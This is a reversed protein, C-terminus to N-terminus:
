GPKISRLSANLVFSRILVDDTSLGQTQSKLWAKAADSSDFPVKKLRPDSEWQPCVFWGVLYLGHCCPNEKLYRDLLQTKMATKLETHWCGKVEVVVRIADLSDPSSGPTFADVHIDTREGQAIGKKGVRPRIEVERNVVIKREKLNRRFHRAIYDSLHNEDKPKFAGKRVEDWLDPAAPTEGQLESGLRELSEILVSLLHSGSQVIRLKPERSMALLSSPSPPVWTQRLTASTAKAAVWRMWNLGSFVAVIREVAKRSQITGWSQLQLLVNDQYRGVQERNSVEHVGEIRPDEEFPYKRVLWIYSHHRAPDSWPNSGPAGVSGSKRPM